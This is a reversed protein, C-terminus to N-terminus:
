VYLQGDRSLDFCINMREVLGYNQIPYVEDILRDLQANVCNDIKRDQKRYIQRTKQVDIKNEIYRGQKRYM